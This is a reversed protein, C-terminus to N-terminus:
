TSLPMILDTEKPKPLPLTVGCRCCTDQRLGRKKGCNACRVVAFHNLALYTLFGPLNFLLVFTAWFILKIIHTRRPWGHLFALTAFVAMVFLNIPLKFESYARTFGMVAQTWIPGHRYNGTKFSHLTALMPVPSSLSNVISFITERTSRMDVDPQRAPKTWAFSSKESLNGFKDVEFLLIKYDMAKYRNERWWASTVDIDNTKPYGIIEQYKAFITNEDAAFIPIADNPFDDPLKIEIFQDPNKLYLSCKASNTYVALSPRYDYEETEKWNNLMIYRIPDNDTKVLTRVNKNAFDIEYVACEAQYTMIPNYSDPRLWNEMRHCEEFTLADSKNVTYGNTGLYGDTQGDISYYKFIQKDIDFFWHGVRKNYINVMPIVFNRSFEGGILNLEDLQRQNVNEYYGYRRNKNKPSWQIFSYPNDEEKGQFLINNDRDRVIFTKDIMVNPGFANTVLYVTGDPAFEKRSNSIEWQEKEQESQETNEAVPVTHERSFEWSIECIIIQLIGVLFMLVLLICFTKIPTATHKLCKHIHM